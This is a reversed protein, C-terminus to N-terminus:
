LCLEIWELLIQQEGRGNHAVTFTIEVGDFFVPGDGSRSLVPPPVGDFPTLTSPSDLASIDLDGAYRGLLKEANDLATNGGPLFAFPVKAAGILPEVWDTAITRATRELSGRAQTPANWQWRQAEM